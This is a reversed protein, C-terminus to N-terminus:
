IRSRMNGTWVFLSCPLNEVLGENLEKQCIVHSVSAWFRSVTAAITSRTAGQLRGDRAGDRPRSYVAIWM